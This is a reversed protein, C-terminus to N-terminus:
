SKGQIQVVNTIVQSNNFDVERLSNCFITSARQQLIPTVLNDITGWVNGTSVEGYM